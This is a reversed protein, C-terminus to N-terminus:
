CCASCCLTKQEEAELVFLELRTLLLSFVGGLLSRL